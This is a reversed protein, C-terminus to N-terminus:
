RTRDMINHQMINHMQRSKREEGSATQRRGRGQCRCGTGAFRRGHVYAATHAHRPHVQARAATAVGRDPKRRPDGRAADADIRGPITLERCSRAGGGGTSAACMLIDNNAGGSVHGDGSDGQVSDGRRTITAIVNKHTKFVNKLQREGRLCQVTLSRQSDKIRAKFVLRQSSPMRGPGNSARMGRGRWTRTSVSCHMTALSPEASPWQCNGDWCVAVLSRQGGSDLRGPLGAASEEDGALHRGAVVHGARGPDGSSARGVRVGRQRIHAGRDLQEIDVM